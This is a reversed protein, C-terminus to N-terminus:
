NERNFVDKIVLYNEYVFCLLSKNILFFYDLIKQANASITLIARPIEKWVFNIKMHDLMCGSM